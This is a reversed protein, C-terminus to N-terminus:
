KMEEQYQLKITELEMRLEENEPDDCPSSSLPDMLKSQADTSLKAKSISGKFGCGIPGLEIPMLSQISSPKDNLENSNKSGFSMESSSNVAM